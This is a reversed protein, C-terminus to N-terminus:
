AVAWIVQFELMVRYIRDEATGGGEFLDRDSIQFVGQFQTAGQTGSYGSLRTAVAAALGRAAAYTLAYCDVQVRSEQWNKPGAFGYAPVTSVTQLIACPLDSGQPRRVWWVRSGAVAQIAPAALLLAVLDQQM